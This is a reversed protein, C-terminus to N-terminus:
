RLNSSIEHLTEVCLTYDKAFRVGKIMHNKPMTYRITVGSMDGENQIAFIQKTIADYLIFVDVENTTYKHKNGNSRHTTSSILDFKVVEGDFTTSTKVQVKLIKDQVIILYDAKENDGFQQYVPIGLEVLKALTFAEGINGINKSNM